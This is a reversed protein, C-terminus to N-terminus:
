LKTKAKYCCYSDDSIVKKSDYKPFKTLQSLFIAGGEDQAVYLLNVVMGVSEIHGIYTQPFGNQTAAASHNRERRLM